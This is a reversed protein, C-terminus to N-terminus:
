TGKVLRWGTSSWRWMVECRCLLYKDWALIPGHALLHAEPSRMTM